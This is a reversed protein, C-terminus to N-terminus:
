RADPNVIGGCQVLGVGVFVAVIHEPIVADRGHGVPLHQFLPGVLMQMRKELIDRQMGSRIFVIFEDGGLRGIVDDSRFTTQLLATVRKLVKDGELHGFRDNIGKFNDVDLLILIGERGPEAAM